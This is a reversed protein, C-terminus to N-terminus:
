KYVRTEVYCRTKEPMQQFYTYKGLIFPISIRIFFFGENM